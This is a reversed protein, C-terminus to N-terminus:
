AVPEPLGRHRFFFIQDTLDAKRKFLIYARPLSKVMFKVFTDVRVVGLILRITM